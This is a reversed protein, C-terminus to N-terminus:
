KKQLRRLDEQDAVQQTRLADMESRLRPVEVRWEAAETSIGYTVPLFVALVGILLTAMGLVLGWGTLRAAWRPAGYIKENVEKAISSVNLFTDTSKESKEMIELVYQERDRQVKELNTEEHRHFLVRFFPENKKIIFDRDGFNVLATALPGSTNPDIIGVNLGVSWRSDV